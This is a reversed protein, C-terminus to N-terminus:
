QTKDKLFLLYRIEEATFPTNKKLGNFDGEKLMRLVMPQSHTMMLIRRLADREISDNGLLKKAGVQDLGKIKLERVIGSDIHKRQYFWNYAPTEQRATVVVKADEVSDVLAAFFEVVEDSVSFYDDFVFTANELRLVDQLGEVSKRVNRGFDVLKSEIHKVTSSATLPIWLTDQDELGEVFNRALATTGSGRNGLAVLVKADSDMFEDIAALEAERGYFAELAPADKLDRVPMPRNEDVRVVGDRMQSVAAVARKKGIKSEIDKGIMRVTEGETIVTFVDDLAARWLNEANKLGEATIAYVNMRREHGKVRATLEEVHGDKILGKVARPVHTRSIGVAFAIGAQTCEALYEEPQVDTAFRMLHLLVRDNVSLQGSEPM